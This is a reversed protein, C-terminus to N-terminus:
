HPRAASRASFKGFFPFRARHVLCSMRDRAGTRLVTECMLPEGAVATGRKPRRRKRFLLEISRPAGQLARAEGRFAAM